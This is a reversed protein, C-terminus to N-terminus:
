QRSQDIVDIGPPPTFVFISDKISPNEKVETFNIRTRQGLADILEMLYLRQNEFGIRVETFANESDKPILSVWDINGSTELDSVKYNETVDSGGSLLVAPTRGLAEAQNRVTIQELDIDYLWVRKSDGVIEQAAPPTYNWRFRGPRAIWLSGQGADLPTLKQDLVLQSFNAKLTTVESFFRALAAQGPSNKSSQSSASLPMLTLGCLLVVGLIRMSRPKTNRLSFIKVCM